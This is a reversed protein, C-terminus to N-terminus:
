NKRYDLSPYVDALTKAGDVREKTTYVTGHANHHPWNKDYPLPKKLKMPKGELFITSKGNASNYEIHSVKGIHTIAGIPHKVFIIVYRILYYKELAIKIEGWKNEKLFMDNMTNPAASTLITDFPEVGFSRGYKVISQNNIKCSVGFMSKKGKIKESIEIGDKVVSLIERIIKIGILGQGVAFLGSEKAGQYLSKLDIHDLLPILPSLDISNKGKSIKKIKFSNIKKDDVLKYLIDTIKKASDPDASKINAKLNDMSNSEIM